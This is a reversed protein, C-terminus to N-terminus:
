GSAPFQRQNAARVFVASQTGGDRFIRNSAIHEKAETLHSFREELKHQYDYLVWPLKAQWDEGAAECLIRLQEQVEAASWTRNEGDFIPAEYEESSDEQDDDDAEGNTLHRHFLGVLEEVEPASFVLSDSHGNGLAEYRALQAWAANQQATLEATPTELVKRIDASSFGNGFSEKPTTMRALTLDREYPLLRNVWRWFQYCILYVLFEEVEGVPAYAQRFGELHQQWEAESELQLLVPSRSRIGHNLRSVIQRQRGEATSQGRKRRGNNQIAKHVM